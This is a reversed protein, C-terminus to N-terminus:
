KPGKRIPTLLYLSRGRRAVRVKRYQASQERGYRSAAERAANMDYYFATAEGDPAMRLLIGSFVEFLTSSSKSGCGSRARASM